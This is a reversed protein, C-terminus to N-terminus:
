RGDLMLVTFLQRSRYFGSPGFVRSFAFRKCSNKESFTNLINVMQVSVHRSVIKKVPLSCHWYHGTLFRLWANRWYTFSLSHVFLLINTRNQMTNIKVNIKIVNPLCRNSLYYFTDCKFHTKCAHSYSIESKSTKWPLAAVYKFHSPYGLIPKTPFKSSKAVTFYNQLDV